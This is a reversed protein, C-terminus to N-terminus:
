MQQIQMCNIRPTQKLMSIPSDDIPPNYNKISSPSPPLNVFVMVGAESIFLLLIVM